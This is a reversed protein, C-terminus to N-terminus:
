LGLRERCELSDKQSSSQAKLIYVSEHWIFNGAGRFKYLQRSLAELFIKSCKRAVGRFLSLKNLFWVEVFIPRYRLRLQFEFKFM